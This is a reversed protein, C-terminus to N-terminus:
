DLDKFKLEYPTFMNNDKTAQRSQSDLLKQPDKARGRLYENKSILQKVLDFDEVRSAVITFMARRESIDMKEIAFWDGLEDRPVASLARYIEYMVRTASPPEPIDKAMGLDSQLKRHRQILRSRLNGVRTHDNPQAQAWKLASSAATAEDKNEVQQVYAREAKQFMDAASRYIRSNTQLATEHQKTLRFTLGLLLLFLLTVFTAISTRTVEFTNSPAFEDQLLETNLPNLGLARLACGVAGVIAVGKYAADPGAEPSDVHDFVSFVQIPLGFREQLAERVEPLLAGGGSLYVISPPADQRVGALSRIVERHLKKVFEMHADRPEMEATAAAKQRAELEAATVLLDGSDARAVGGPLLPPLSGVGLLFSRVMRPKGDIVLMLATTHAGVDLLIANPHATFLDLATACTYVATADMDVSAPEIGAMRLVALRQVLEEKSSAFITLRSGEKTEGTKIWNVVVEDVSQSHLHHEAEFKVVKRIKEPELFPVVIERSLTTGTDYTACVNDTPLKLSQFIEKVTAAKAAAIDFPPAGEEVVAPPQPLERVAVRQVKFAKGSGSLEVVKISRSGIDLGIARAM